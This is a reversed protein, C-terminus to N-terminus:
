ILGGRLSRTRRRYKKCREWDMDHMNCRLWSAGDGDCVYGNRAMYDETMEKQGYPGPPRDAPLPDTAVMSALMLEHDSM